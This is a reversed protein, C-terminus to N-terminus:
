LLPKTRGCEYQKMGAKPHSSHLTVARVAVPEQRYSHRALQPNTLHGWETRDAGFVTYTVLRIHKRDIHLHHLGDQLTLLQASDMPVDLVLVDEDVGPLIKIFLLLFIQLFKSKQATKPSNSRAKVPLIYAKFTFLM